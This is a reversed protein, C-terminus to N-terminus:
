RVRRNSIVPRCVKFNFSDESLDEMQLDGAVDILLGIKAKLKEDLLAEEIYLLQTIAENMHLKYPHNNKHM